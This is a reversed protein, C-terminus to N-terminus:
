CRKAPPRTSGTSPPAWTVGADRANEELLERVQPLRAAGGRVLADVYELMRPHGRHAPPHRRDGRAGLGQNGAPPAPAQAVTGADLPGVHVEHLWTSLKPLPYRCTVLLKGVQTAKALTLLSDHVVADLYEAGGVTLNTEFNDLVLALKHGQLLRALLSLKEVDVLESGALETASSQADGWGRERVAAAAQKSLEALDFRDRVAAVAWGEEQLRAMARGALCSKGVRGLGTLVVGARQGHVAVSRPDDRLVRLVERLEPRRGILEGLSLQPM